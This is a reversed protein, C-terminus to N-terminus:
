LEIIIGDWGPRIGQPSLLRELMEHTAGGNESHHTTFTPTDRGLVGMDRLRQVTAIADQIDMHGSYDTRYIGETCEVILADLRYNALFRWTDEAWYGTDTAYLCTAIGDSVILNQADEEPMHNARIPTIEYNAHHFPRFSETCVVDFPWDPYREGIRACIAANGYITFNPFEADRFPYLAYQLEALAFHDDHSHTFVIGSWESADLRDRHTQMLTDPGFDIKLIDDILAGSRSRVDKGGNIRALRSIETDSFLAPIGDAAGTGLLRVTM